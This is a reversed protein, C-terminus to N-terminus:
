RPPLSNGAPAATRLLDSAYFAEPTMPRAIHYGQAADCGAERLWDLTAADEIGEATVTAGLVHALQIASHVIAQDGPSALLGTIFSRDIKIEDPSMRRLYDFAAHGVGFDDLAIRVGHRRLRNIAALVGDPDHMVATETVELVLGEGLSSTQELLTEVLDADSLDNASVNVAVQLGLGRQQLTRLHVAARAVMYRTLAGVMGIREAMPVFRSPPVVGRVPHQWRVLLEVGSMRGSRLDLKPQLAHGVSGNALADSFEALVSLNVPDPELRPGYVVPGGGQEVAAACAMDAAREVQAAGTGHEPFLALGIAFRPELSVGEIAVRTTGREIQRLLRQRASAVDAVDCMLLAFQGRGVCFAQADPGAAQLSRGVGAALGDVGGQGAVAHVLDLGLLDLRALAGPRGGSDGGALVDALSLALANRNPLATQPDHYALYHVRAEAKRRLQAESDARRHQSRAHVHARRWWVLALVAAVLLPIGLTVGLLLGSRFSPPVPGLQALWTLHLRDQIGAARVRGLAADIAAALQPRDPRVAFAYELSLVPPSLAVVEDIGAALLAEYGISMPAVAFDAEGRAVAAVADAEVAVPILVPRPRMATLAEWALGAHQVAVRRGALAELGQVFAGDSRGFVLHYRTMFPRSFAFRHRRAESIFMPVVDARGAALDDLAKAWDGLRYEVAAGLDDAVAAFLEVDFGSARGDPGLFHFPPYNGDGAFVLTRPAQGTEEQAAAGALWALGLGLLGALLWAPRAGRWAHRAPHRRVAVQGM